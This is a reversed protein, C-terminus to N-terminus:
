LIYAVEKFAFSHLGGTITRLQLIGNPQVNEIKAMFEVGSHLLVGKDSESDILSMYRYYGDSRYLIRLFEEHIKEANDPLQECLNLLEECIQNLISAAPLQRNAVMAMSIPNPADSTFRMQNVNLGIGAITYSIKGGSLTHELLMGCIKFNGFYIDNPWKISVGSGLYQKLVRTVALAAIESLQFQNKPLVNGKKLLVSFTLNKNPESEWSNGRQGRGAIQKDAYVVTGHAAETAIEALHSNTSLTEKLHIYQPKM